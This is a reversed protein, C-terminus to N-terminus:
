SLAWIWLLLFAAIYSLTATAIGSWSRPEKARMARYAPVADLDIGPDRSLIPKVLANLDAEYRHVARASALLVVDCLYLALYGVYCCALWVNTADIGGLSWMDGTAYFIPTAVLFAPLFLKRAFVPPWFPHVNTPDGVRRLYERELDLDTAPLELYDLIRSAISGRWVAYANRPHSM